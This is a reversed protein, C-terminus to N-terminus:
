SPEPLEVRHLAAANDPLIKRRRSESWEATVEVLHERVSPHLCTPHPFNTEFLQPRRDRSSAPARYSWLDPPETIHANTDIVHLLEISRRVAAGGAM